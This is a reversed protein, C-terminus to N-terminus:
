QEPEVITNIGENIAQAEDVTIWRILNKGNSINTDTFALEQLTANYGVIIRNHGCDPHAKIFAPMDITKTAAKDTDVKALYKQWSAPNRLNIRSNVQMDIPSGLSCGWLIPEGKDIYPAVNEISVAPDIQRAHLGYPDLYSSIAPIENNTDTEGGQGTQLTVAFFYM